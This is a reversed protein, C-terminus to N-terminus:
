DLLTCTAIFSVILTLATLKVAIVLAATDTHTEKLAPPGAEKEEEGHKPRPENSGVDIVVRAPNKGVRLRARLVSVV